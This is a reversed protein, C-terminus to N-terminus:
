KGVVRISFPDTTSFVMIPENQDAMNSAIIYDTPLTTQSARSPVAIRWNKPLRDIGVSILEQSENDYTYLVDLGRDGINFILHYNTTLPSKKIVTEPEALILTFATEVMMEYKDKTTMPKPPNDTFEGMKELAQLARAKWLLDIGQTQAFVLSAVAICIGLMVIILGIKWKM